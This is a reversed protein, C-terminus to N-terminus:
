VHARGIEACIHDPLDAFSGSVDLGFARYRSAADQTSQGMIEGELHMSAYPYVLAKVPGVFLRTHEVALADENTADEMAEGPVFSQGMGLQVLHNRMELASEM